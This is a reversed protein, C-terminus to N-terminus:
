DAQRRAGAEDPIRLAELREEIWRADGFLPEEAANGAAGENVPGAGENVMKSFKMAFLSESRPPKDAM